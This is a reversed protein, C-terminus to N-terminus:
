AAIKLRKLDREARARRNDYWAALDRIDVFMGAKQSDRFTIVPLDLKGSFLDRRFREWGLEPYCIERVADVPVFPRGFQHLFMEETTM